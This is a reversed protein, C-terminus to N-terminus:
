LRACHDINNTGILTRTFKQLLYNEENTCKASTLVGVSDGGYKEKISSLKDAVHSIAEEWSVEEFEGNKKILPKKLREESHIFDMGFRGKVCLYGDNVVGEPDEKVGHVKGDKVKLNFTCGVGCYPCTTKVKDFEYDRGLGKFPKETLAGVPCASICNGCGVCSSEGLGKDFFTAVKTNFGRDIFDIAYVGLIEDCVRICKGCLICKDMDREVFRSTDDIEYSTYEGEFRTDGVGYEYCYDQLKCNGNSECVMCDKPHNALILELVKKRADIVNDTNTKIVMGDAVPLACAAPLNKAKEVEVVCIRCAGVNTLDKQYCLTPIEVGVKNAADLVTSGKEVQVDRGDINVNVLEM